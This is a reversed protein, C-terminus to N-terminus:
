NLVDIWVGYSLFYKFSSIVVSLELAMVHPVIRGFACLVKDFMISVTVLM